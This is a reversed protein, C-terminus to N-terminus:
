AVCYLAPDPIYPVQGTFLALVDFVYKATVTLIRGDFLVRCLFVYSSSIFRHNSLGPVIADIDMFNFRLVYEFKFLFSVSNVHRLRTYIVVCDCGDKNSQERVGM